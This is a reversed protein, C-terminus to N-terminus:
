RRNLLFPNKIYSKEQQSIQPGDDSVNVKCGCWKCKYSYVYPSIREVFKMRTPRAGKFPHNSPCTMYPCCLSTKLKKKDGLMGSTLTQGFTKVWGM